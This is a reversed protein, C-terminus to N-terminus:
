TNVIREPCGEPTDFHGTEPRNEWAQAVLKKVYASFNRTETGPVKGQFQVYLGLLRHVNFEATPCLMVVPGDKGGWELPVVHHPVFVVVSPAHSTVCQCPNNM